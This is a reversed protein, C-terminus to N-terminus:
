RARRPPLAAPGRVALLVLFSAAVTLLAPVHIVEQHHTTMLQMGASLLSMVGM